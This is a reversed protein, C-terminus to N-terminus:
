VLKGFFIETLYEFKVKNNNNFKNFIKELELLIKQGEKTNEDPVYSSSFMRGKIGEFDFLQYNEFTKSKYGKDLFLSIDNEAINKHNVEKYDSSYEQLLAEYAKLFESTNTKRDNWVLLVYSDEKLIRKFEKKAKPVDFWHFAQFASILDISDDDLMTNESTGNISIFNEYKSLLKEGAERMEKNPEVAYVRNGNKLFLETSIGTGSGIDAVVKESTLNLELKIFDFMESPYSPRYKIYNEVKNSFRITAKKDYNAQEM